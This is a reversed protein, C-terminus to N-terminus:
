LLPKAGNFGYNVRTILLTGFEHFTGRPNSLFGVDLHISVDLFDLTQKPLEGPFLLVADDVLFNGLKVATLDNLSIGPELVLKISLDRLYPVVVLVHKLIDVEV